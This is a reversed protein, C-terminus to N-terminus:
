EMFGHKKANDLYIPWQCTVGHKKNVFTLLQAPGNFAHLRSFAYENTGVLAPCLIREEVKDWSHLHGQFVTDFDRRGRRKSHEKATDRAIGYFPKIGAMRVDDGHKILIRSGPVRYWCAPSPSINWHISKDNRTLMQAIKYVATDWNRQARKKCRPKLDQRGHNGCVCYLKVSKLHPALAQVLQALVWGVNPVAVALDFQNTDKLEDHIEGNVMDGLVNIILDDIPSSQRMINILELTKQGTLWVRALLIDWNFEAFGEMEKPDVSEEAHWDSLNLIATSAQHTLKPKPYSIKRPVPLVALHGQIRKEWETAHAVQRVLEQVRRNSKRVDSQLLSIKDQYEQAAPGNKSEKLLNKKM